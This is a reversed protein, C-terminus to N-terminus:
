NLNKITACKLYCLKEGDLTSVGIINSNNQKVRKRPLTYDRGILCRSSLYSSLRESLWRDTHSPRTVLLIWKVLNSECPGTYDDVVFATLSVHAGTVAGELVGVRGGGFEVSFNPSACLSRRDFKPSTGFASPTFAPPVV